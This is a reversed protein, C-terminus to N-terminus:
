RNPMSEINVYHYGAKLACDQNPEAFGSQWFQCRERLCSVLKYSSTVGSGFKAIRGGYIAAEAISLLPCVKQKSM